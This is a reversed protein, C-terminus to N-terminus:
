GVSDRPTELLRGLAQFRPAARLPAFEPRVDLWAFDAAREAAADELRDLAKEMEGLGVHAQALKVPSM